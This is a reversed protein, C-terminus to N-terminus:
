SKVCKNKLLIDISAQLIHSQYHHDQNIIVTITVKSGYSVMRDNLLINTVLSLADFSVSCATIAMKVDQVARAALQLASDNM